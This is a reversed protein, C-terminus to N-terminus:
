LQALTGYALVAIDRMQRRLKDLTQLRGLESAAVLIEYKPVTFGEHVTATSPTGLPVRRNQALLVPSVLLLFVVQGVVLTTSKSASRMNKAMPNMM